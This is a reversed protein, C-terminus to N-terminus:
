VALLAEEWSILCKQSPLWKPKEQQCVERILAEVIALNKSKNDTSNLQIIAVKM